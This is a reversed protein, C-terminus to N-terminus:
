VAEVPVTHRTRATVTEMPLLDAAMCVSCRPLCPLAVRSYIPSPIKTTKAITRTRAPLADCPGFQVAELAGAHDSITVAETLAPRSYPEYLEHARQRIQHELEQQDSTAATPPKKTVDKQM